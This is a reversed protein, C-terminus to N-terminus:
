SNTKCLPPPPLAWVPLCQAARGRAFAVAFLVPLTILILWAAGRLLPSARTRPLGVFTLTAAAAGFVGGGTHALTSVVEASDPTQILMLGLLGVVMVCRLLPRKTTRWRIATDAALAGVLGFVTGSAGVLVACPEGMAAQAVTGGLASALWVAALRVTGVRMELPASVVAYTAMNSLCHRLSLHLFANSFWRGAGHARVASPLFFAGWIYLYRADILTVGGGPKLYDFFNHPGVPRPPAGFCLHSSEAALFSFVSVMVTLITMTWLPAVAPRAALQQALDALSTLEERLRRRFPQLGRVHARHEPSHRIAVVVEVTSALRTGPSDLRPESTRLLRTRVLAWLARGSRPSEM